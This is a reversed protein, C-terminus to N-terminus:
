GHTEELQVQKLNGYDAKTCSKKDPKAKDKSSLLL